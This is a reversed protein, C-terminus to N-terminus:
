KVTGRGVPPAFPAAGADIVDKKVRSPAVFLRKGALVREVVEWWRRLRFEVPAGRSAAAEVRFADRAGAAGLRREAGEASADARVLAAEGRAEPLASELGGRAEFIRRERDEAASGVDRFAAVAGLPPHLDLLNLSVLRVPIGAQGLARSLRAFAEREVEGRGAALVVDIGREAFLLRLVSLAPERVAELGERTGYRLRRPDTVLLHLTVKAEVLNGDGTLFSAENPNDGPTTYAAHWTGGAFTWDDSDPDPLSSARFGLDLRELGAPVVDVTVLPAPPRWHWGPLLPAAEVRGMWRAFAVSGQPVALLGRALAALLLLVLAGAFQRGPSVSSFRQRLKRLRAVVADPLLGRFSTVIQRSGERAGVRVLSLLFPVAFAVALLVESTAASGELFEKAEPNPAAARGSVAQYATGAVVSVVLTAVFLAAVFRRGFHRRLLLVTPANTVPGTLLLVLVAAPSFGKALLVAGLPTSASACLYLPVALLVAALIQGAQGGPLLSSVDAPLIAAFLGSLLLGALLPWAVEDLVDRFGFRWAEGVFSLVTRRAPAPHVPLSGATPEAGVPEPPRVPVVNEAQPRRSRLIRKVGERRRAMWSWIGAVWAPDVRGARFADGNVTGEGDVKEPEGWVESALVLFGAVVAALFGALLRVAAFLPGFLGATLLVTDESNEPTAVAFAAAAEPTAKKRKLGVALPLVGCSCVPLVVGLGIASLISRLGRTSLNRGFDRGGLAAHVLGALLFGALLYVGSRAFLDLTVALVRLLTGAISTM